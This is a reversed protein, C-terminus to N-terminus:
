GMRPIVGIQQLMGLNDLVSWDEAWKGGSFRSTISGAVTAVKGSPPIGMLPGTQTGRATFRWAIKDGEAVTDEVTFTLDPMAARYMAVFAKFGDVGRVPVPLNPDHLVYDSAIVDDVFALNGKNWVESVWERIFASTPEASSM